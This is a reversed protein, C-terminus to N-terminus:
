RSPNRLTTWDNKLIKEKSKGRRSLFPNQTEDRKKNKKRIENREMVTKDHTM